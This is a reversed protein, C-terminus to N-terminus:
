LIGAANVTQARRKPLVDGAFPNRRLQRALYITRKRLNRDRPQFRERRTRECMKHLVRQLRLRLLREPHVRLVLAREIMVRHVGEKLLPLILRLHRRLLFGNLPHVRNRVRQKLARNALHDAFVSNRLRFRPPHPAYQRAGGTREARLKAAAREPRDLQFHREALSPVAQLQVCIRLRPQVAANVSNVAHRVRVIAIQAHDVVLAAAFLQIRSLYILAQLKLQNEIQCFRNM